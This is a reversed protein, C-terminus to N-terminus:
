SAQRHSLYELYELVSPLAMKRRQIRATVAGNPQLNKQQAGMIEGILEYPDEAATVLSNYAVEVPNNTGEFDTLEAVTEILVGAVELLRATHFRMTGPWVAELAYVSRKDLKAEAAILNDFSTIM